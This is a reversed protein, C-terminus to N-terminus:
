LPSGPLPVASAAEIDRNQYLEFFRTGAMEILGRLLIKEQTFQGTNRTVLAQIRAGALFPAAFAAAMLLFALVTVLAFGRDADSKVDGEGSM